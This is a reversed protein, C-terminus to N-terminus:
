NFNIWNLFGDSLETCRNCPHLSSERTTQSIIFPQETGQLWFRLEELALKIALMEQNGMISNWETPTLHCPHLCKDPRVTIFQKKPVSQALVPLTFLVNVEMFAKYELTLATITKDLIGSCLWAQLPIMIDSICLSPNVVGPVLFSINWMSVEPKDSGGYVSGIGGRISFSPLNISNIVICKVCSQRKRYPYLGTSRSPSFWPSPQLFVRSLRTM